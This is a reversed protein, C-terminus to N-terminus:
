IFERVNVKLHLIKVFKLRFKNFKLSVPASPVPSLASFLLFYASLWKPWLNPPAFSVELSVPEDDGRRRCTVVRPWLPDLTLTVVRRWLRTWPWRGRLWPIGYWRWRRRRRVEVSSTPYRTPERPGIPRRWRCRSAGTSQRPLPSRVAHTCPCVADRSRVVGSQAAFKKKWLNIDKNICIACTGSIPALFGCWFWQYWVTGYWVM